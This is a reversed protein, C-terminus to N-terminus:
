NQCYAKINATQIQIKDKNKKIKLNCADQSSPSFESRLVNSINCNIFAWVRKSYNTKQQSKNLLVIFCSLMDILLSCYYYNYKDNKKQKNKCHFVLYNIIISWSKKGCFYAFFFGVVPLKIILKVFIRYSFDSFM